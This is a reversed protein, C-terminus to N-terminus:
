SAVHRVSFTHTLFVDVICTTSCVHAATRLSSFAKCPFGATYWMPEESPRPVPKKHNRSLVDSYFVESEINQKLFMTPGKAIESM